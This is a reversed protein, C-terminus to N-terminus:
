DSPLFCVGGSGAKRGERIAVIWLALVFMRTVITLLTLLLWIPVLMAIRGVGAMLVILLLILILVLIVAVQTVRWITSVVVLGPWWLGGFSQSRGM